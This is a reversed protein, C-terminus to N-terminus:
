NNFTAVIIMEVPLNWELMAPKDGANTIRYSVLALDIRPIGVVHMTKGPQLTKVKLEAKSDKPFVMRMKQSILEGEKDLIKCFIFRGDDVVFQDTGIIEIWFQVYNYGIGNTEIKIEDGLDTLKCRASSYKFFADNAEKYTYGTIPKLSNILNDGEVQTVPHIEFVHDPNTNVIPPFPVGQNQLSEQGAHECWIRWVGKISILNSTGENTHIINMADTEFKANMIEAVVPLDISSETGAIHLDGDKSPANPKEHAHVVNFKADYTVKNKISDVFTKRLVIEIQSYSTLPIISLLIVICKLLIIRRNKFYIKAMFGGIKFM